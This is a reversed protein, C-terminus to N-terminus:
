LKSKPDIVFKNILTAILQANNIHVNHDGEVVKVLCKKYKKMEKLIPKFYNWIELSDEALIILLPCKIRETKMFIKMHKMDILNSFIFNTRPDLTFKWKGDQTEEVCRRLLPLADEKSLVGYRRGESMKSLVTEFSYSPQKGYKINNMLKFYRDHTSKLHERIYNTDVPNVTLTDILILKKVYNPYMQTFFLSLQGGYSHGIIVYSERKLYDAIIKLAIVYDLTHIPLGKGFHDSKGHGPLDVAVYRFNTSPLLPLLREFSGVNDQLGHFMLVVEDKEDGHSIGTQFKKLSKYSFFDLFLYNNFRFSNGAIKGWPAEIEIEEGKPLM